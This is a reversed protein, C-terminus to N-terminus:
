AAPGPLDVRAIGAERFARTARVTIDTMFDEEFGVEVVYCRATLQLVPVISEGTVEQVAILVGKELWAFRSTVVVERLLAMARELDADVAINIRTSVRMSLHGSNGSGVANTLFIMNPVTILDHGLTLIKVSHLGIRQVDGYHEGFRVRDGVQFPQDFLLILGAFVSAVVDKLSIGIAVAASGLLALLLEPRSSLLTTSAGLAGLGYLVFNLLTEIRRIRLRNSPSAAALAESCRGVSVILVWVAGVIVLATVLNTLRVEGLLELLTSPNGGM